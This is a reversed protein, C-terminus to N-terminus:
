IMEYKDHKELNDEAKLIQLNNYNFCLRQHYKCVLNFADIPIKHDIHFDKGSYNNILNNDFFM